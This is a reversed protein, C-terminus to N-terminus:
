VEHRLFNNITHMCEELSNEAFWIGNVYVRFGQKEKTILLGKYHYM